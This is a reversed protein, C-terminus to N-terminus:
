YEYHRKLVVMVRDGRRIGADYFVNAAKNSFDRIEGFTFLREENETNCWVLATKEPTEGAIADVVDYGFNFNEPYDLEIKCLAGSEDVVERCFHQYISM